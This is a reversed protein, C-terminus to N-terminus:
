VTKMNRSEGKIINGDGNDVDMCHSQHLSSVKFSIETPSFILSSALVSHLGSRTEPSHDQQTSYGTIM